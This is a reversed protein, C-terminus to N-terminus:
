RSELEGAHDGCRGTTSSVDKNNNSSKSRVRDAADEASDKRM